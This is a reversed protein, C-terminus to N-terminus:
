RNIRGNAQSATSDNWTLDVWIWFDAWTVNQNQIFHLSLIKVVSLTTLMLLDDVCYDLVNLWCYRWLYNSHPMPIKQMCGGNLFKMEYMNFHWLLNSITVHCGESPASCLNQGNTPPYTSILEYVYLGTSIHKIVQFLSRVCTVGM